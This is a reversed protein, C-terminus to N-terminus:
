LLSSYLALYQNAISGIHYNDANARGRQILNQRYTKDQIIQTIGRRIDTPDYPDVLVAGDEGAVERHPSLDSTVVARGTMQAELIPLGFGEYTSVFVLLDCDVYRQRVEEDSLGTAWHADIGFDDLVQLDTPDPQGVIELRCPLGHLAEALRAINKNKKVGIQLITPYEARFDAPHHTFAPDVFNPIVRLKNPDCSTLELLEQRTKESIVTVASARRIPWEFILWRYFWYRPHWKAYRLLPNCDHITIVTPGSLNFVVSNVDGTVHWISQQESSSQEQAGAWALNQRVNPLTNNYVPLELQQVRLGKRVFEPSLQEFLREISFATPYRKRFVLKLTYNPEPM